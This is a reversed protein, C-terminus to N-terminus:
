LANVSDFLQDAKEEIQERIARFEAKSKASNIKSLIEEQFDAAENILKDSAETKKENYLQASFCEEVIDFILNNLAKKLDRKSAM